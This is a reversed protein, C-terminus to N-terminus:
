NGETYSPPATIVLGEARLQEMERRLSEVESHLRRTDSPFAAGGTEAIATPFPTTRSVNSTSGRPNNPQQSTLPVRRLRALEKGSLGVPIPAVSQSIPPLNPPLSERRLRALEKDSLGVPDPAVPRSSPRSLAVAEAGPEETVLPQQGTTIGSDQTAEPINPDFPTVITRPAQISNTPISRPINRKPKRRRQRQVFAVIGIVALIAGAGGM